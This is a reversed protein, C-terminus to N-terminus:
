ILNANLLERPFNGYYRSNSSSSYRELILLLFNLEDQNLEPFEQKFSDESVESKIDKIVSNIIQMLEYIKLENSKSYTKCIDNALNYIFNISLINLIHVTSSDDLRDMSNQIVLAKFGELCNLSILMRYAPSQDESPPQQALRELNRVISRHPFQQLLTKFIYTNLSNKLIM